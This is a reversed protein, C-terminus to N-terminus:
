MIFAPRESATANVHIPNGELNVQLIQRLAAQCRVEAHSAGRHLPSAATCAPAHTVRPAGGLGAAEGTGVAV